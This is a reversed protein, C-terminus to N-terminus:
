DFVNIPLPEEPAAPPFARRLVAEETPGTFAFVQGDGAHVEFTVPGGPELAYLAFGLHPREARLEDLTSM